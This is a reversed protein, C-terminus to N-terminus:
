VRYAHIIGSLSSPVHGEFFEWYMYGASDPNCYCLQQQELSAKVTPFATATEYIGVGFFCAQNLHVAENCPTDLPNGFDDMPLCYKRTIGELWGAASSSAAASSAAM